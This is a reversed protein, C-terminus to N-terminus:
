GVDSLSYYQLLNGKRKKKQKSLEINQLMSWLWSTINDWLKASLWETRILLYLIVLRPIIKRKPTFCHDAVLRSYSPTLVKMSPKNLTYIKKSSCITLIAYSIHLSHITSTSLYGKPKHRNRKERKTSAVGLPISLSISMSPNVIQWILLWKCTQHEEICYM